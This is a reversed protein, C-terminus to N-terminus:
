PQHGNSNNDLKPADRKAVLEARAEQIWQILLDTQELTVVVIDDEDDGFREQSIVIEDNNTSVAFQEARKEMTAVGGRTGPYVYFGRRAILLSLLALRCGRSLRGELAESLHYVGRRTEPVVFLVVSRGLYSLSALSSAPNAVM